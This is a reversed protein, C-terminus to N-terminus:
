QRYVATCLNSPNGEFYGRYIDRARVSYLARQFIVIDLRGLRELPKLIKLLRAGIDGARSSM